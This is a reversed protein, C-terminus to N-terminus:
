IHSMLDCTISLIVEENKQKQRVMGLVSPFDIVEQDSVAGSLDSPEPLAPAERNTTKEVMVAKM